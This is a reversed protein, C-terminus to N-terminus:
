PTDFCCDSADPCRTKSTVREPVLAAPIPNLAVFNMVSWQSNLM